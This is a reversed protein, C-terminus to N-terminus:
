SIEGGWERRGGIIFTCAYVCVRETSVTRRGVGYVGWTGLWVIHVSGDWIPFLRSWQFPLVAWVGSESSLDSFAQLLLLTSLHCRFLISTITFFDLLPFLAKPLEYLSTIHSTLPFICLSTHSTITIPYKHLPM